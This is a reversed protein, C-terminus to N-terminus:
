PSIRLCPGADGIRLGAAPWCGACRAPPSKAPPRCGPWWGSGLAAQRGAAKRPELTRRPHAGAPMRGPQSTLM